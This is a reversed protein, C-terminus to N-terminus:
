KLHAITQRAIRRKVRRNFRELGLRRSLIEGAILAFGYRRVKFRFRYTKNTLWLAFREATRPDHSPAAPAYGRAMMLRNAKGEVLAIDRPKLKRRWQEVLTADPPAYTSAEHYSLMSLSYPLGLFAAVRRLENETDRFLDEYRLTLVQDPNLRDAIRDWAQETGIWHDVGYYTNGSWGMGISSRAVDRPDRLMHIIRAEPLLELLRDPHRHVNLTTVVAGPVTLDSLMQLLLDRGDLEPRLGLGKTKFIRDEELDARRYHWGGPGAPDRQLHDFLFDVEGPNSISEHANLMLRFVTTGSRLAGFVFVPARGPMETM